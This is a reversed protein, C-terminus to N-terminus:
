RPDETVAIPLGGREVVKEFDVHPSMVRVEDFRFRERAEHEEAALVAMWCTRVFESANMTEYLLWKRCKQERAVGHADIEWFVIQLYPTGNADLRVDFKWDRYRVKKVSVALAALWPPTADGDTM